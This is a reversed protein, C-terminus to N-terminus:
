MCVTFLLVNVPPMRHWCSSAYSQVTAMIAWGMWQRENCAHRKTDPAERKTCRCPPGLPRHSAATTWGPACPHAHLRHAAHHKSRGSRRRTGEGGSCRVEVRWQGKHKLGEVWEEYNIGKGKCVRELMEQPLPACPLACRETM